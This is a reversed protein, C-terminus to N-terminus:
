SLKSKKKKLRKRGEIMEGGLDSILSKLHSRPFALHKINYAVLFIFSSTERM